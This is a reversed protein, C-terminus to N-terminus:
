RTPQAPNANVQAGIVQKLQGSARRIAQRYEPMTIQTIAQLEELSLGSGVAGTFKDVM